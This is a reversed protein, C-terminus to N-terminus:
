PTRTLPTPIAVSIWQQTPSGLLFLLDPFGCELHIYPSSFYIQTHLYDRVTPRYYGHRGYSVIENIASSLM